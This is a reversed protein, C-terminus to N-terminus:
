IFQNTNLENFNHVELELGGKYYLIFEVVTKKFPSRIDETGVELRVKYEGTPVRFDLNRTWGDQALTPTYLYQGDTCSIDLYDKSDGGIDRTECQIGGRTSWPYRVSPNPLYYSDAMPTMPEFHLLKGYCKSIAKMSKNKVILRCWTRSPNLAPVIENSVSLKPTLLERTQNWLRFPAVFFILIFPIGLLTGLSMWKLANIYFATIFFGPLSILIMAISILREDKGTRNEGRRSKM